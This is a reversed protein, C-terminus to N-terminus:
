HQTQTLMEADSSDAERLEDDALAIGYEQTSLNSLHIVPMENAISSNLQPFVRM